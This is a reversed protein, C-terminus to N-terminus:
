KAAGLKNARGKIGALGRLASRSAEEIEAEKGGLYLRGFAGMARFELIKINAAKEAENAAFVAYGAPHCELVYYTEGGLIMDGHRMRNILMTHHPDMGTITQSSVIVPELRDAEKLDLRDLIARGAERVQGQDFAHVELFGYEREVIQIAPEVKAAKLAADAAINIEMGPSVELYLSSQGEIPLYGQSITALFSAVQPQLVDLYVYTRLEAM